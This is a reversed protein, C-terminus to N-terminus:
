TPFNDNDKRNSHHLGAQVVNVTISSFFSFGLESTRPLQKKKIELFLLQGETSQESEM